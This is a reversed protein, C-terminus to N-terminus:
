ELMSKTNPYHHVFKITTLVKEKTEENEFELIDDGKEMKSYDHNGTYVCGEVKKIGNKIAHLPREPLRLLYKM